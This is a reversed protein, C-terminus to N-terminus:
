ENTPARDMTLIYAQSALEMREGQFEDYLTIAYTGGSLKKYMNNSFSVSYTNNYGETLETGITLNKEQSQGFPDTMKIVLKHNFAGVEYNSDRLLNYNMAISITDSGRTNRGDSNLISLTYPYVTVKSLTKVPTMAVTNLELASINIFGTSEQGAETLKNGAIGPGLYLTLNSAGVSKPLKAWFTILQKRGPTAPTDPQSSTAEYLQGDSTKYYAQLRAMQSQRKEESNLFLESYVINANVGEYVTTKNEQVTANKGKGVVAYSGGREIKYVADTVSSTSLSLFPIKEEKVVSYLNVQLKSFDTTYPVKSLMYMEASKGPAISSIEKDMFLETSATLDDNDVKLAGKFEPLALNVSQTNTINLKAILIDEDKWPFRQLSLLSYGFTGYSNTTRYDQGKQTEARLTYPIAFYAIPISLKAAAATAAENSSDSQVAEIMQLKLTNQEVELPVQATLQVVKEQLPKLSAGSIDKANIPFTAGRASRVSLEYNPLIVAQKGANKIRFRFTWIGSNDESYVSAATLQLEITNGNIGIKKMIGKDVNLNPIVAAPLMYSSKPLELKLTEDKQVYQVKMKDTKLYPPIETLYYITKKEQPQIKYGVQSSNLALEFATGGASMLYVTYGPDGLVKTGENSFNIGVKAFVKGGYKYIQLSESAAGVPINNISLKQRHASAATPSYNAPLSLTGAHKLYGKSQPDWVFMTIKLGKLSNIKGVNVYYTVRESQKSVVKNKLADATIPNGPIVSGGFTVVRSFYHNLNANSDGANSYSLTYTLINGGAQSWINIDEVTAKVSAELPISGLNKPTVSTEASVTHGSLQSIVFTILLLAIYISKHKRM